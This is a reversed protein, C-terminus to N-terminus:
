APEGIGGLHRRRAQGAKAEPVPLSVGRQGPAQALAGIGALGHQDCVVVTLHRNVDVRCPRRAVGVSRDLVVGADGVDRFEVGRPLTKAILVQFEPGGVTGLRLEQGVHAM